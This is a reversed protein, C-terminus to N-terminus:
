FVCVSIVTTVGKEVLGERVKLCIRVNAQFGVEKRLLLDPETKNDAHEQMNVQGNTWVQVLILVTTILYAPTYEIFQFTTM